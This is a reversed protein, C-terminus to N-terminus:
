HGCAASRHCQLTVQVMRDRRTFDEKTLMLYKSLCDESLALLIVQPGDCMVRPPSCLLVKVWWMSPFCCLPKSLLGLQYYVDPSSGRPEFHGQHPYILPVGNVLTRLFHRGPRDTRTFSDNSFRASTGVWAVVLRTPHLGEGHATCALM